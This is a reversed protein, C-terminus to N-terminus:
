TNAFMIIQESIESRVKLVKCPPLHHLIDIFGPMRSISALSKNKESKLSLGIAIMGRFSVQTM